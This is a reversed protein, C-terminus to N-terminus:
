FFQFPETHVPPKNASLRKFLDKTTINQKLEFNRSSSSFNNSFVLLYGSVCYIDVYVIYDVRVHYLKYKMNYYHLSEEQKPSVNFFYSIFILTVRKTGM